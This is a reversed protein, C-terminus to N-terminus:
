RYQKSHVVTSKLIVADRGRKFSRARQKDKTVGIRHPGLPNRPNEIPHGLEFLQDLSWPSALDPAILTEWFNWRFPGHLSFIHNFSRVKKRRRKKVKYKANSYLWNDERTTSRYLVWRGTCSICSIHTQDRPWSSGSFPLMAVWELIRAQLIGLVSADQPSYDMPDCLTLCSRLLQAHMCDRM